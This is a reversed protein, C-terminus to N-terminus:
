ASARPQPGKKMGSIKSYVGGVALGFLSTVVAHGVITPSFDGRALSLGILIALGILGVAFGTNLTRSKIKPRVWSFIAPIALTIIISAFVFTIDILSKAWVAVAAGLIVIGLLARQIWNVAQKKDLGRFHNQILSSAATYAYTDISSMFAAFFVVVALGVLGAPLLDALGMVLATDPDLEPLVEKVLLGVFTLAGMVLFYVAISGLLSRSVTKENPMAYVRQWLDPSGFPLLTGILLFGIINKAGTSFATIETPSIDAQGGLFFFFVVLVFMIAAYQLVDTKVVAQFGALVLYALVVGAIILVSLSFGAGSFVSFVKAAAILNMVMFGAMTVINIGSAFRGALIGHRHHFYDAQTYYQGASERHLKKAFPIFLLYGLLVGVFVWFASLGYLYLMATYSLLIAGTKTANITAIGSLIGMKRESILFGEVSNRRSFYVGVGVVGALYLIILSFDVVSLM